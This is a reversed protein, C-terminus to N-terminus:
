GKTGYEFNWEKVEKKSEPEWERVEYVMEGNKLMKFSKEMDIPPAMGAAEMKSLIHEGDELENIANWIIAIMESRKM